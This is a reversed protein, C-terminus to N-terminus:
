TPQYISLYVQNVTLRNIFPYTSKISQLDTSLYIPLSSQSYTPQYISLYVQNVTLRKIFPYTSKISLLDTSLHIPLSTEIKGKGKRLFWKTQIQAPLSSMVHHTLNTLFEATELYVKSLLLNWDKILFPFLPKSFTIRFFYSGDLSLNHCPFPSQHTHTHTMITQPCLHTWIHDLFYITAAGSRQKGGGWRSIPFKHNVTIKWIILVNYKFM